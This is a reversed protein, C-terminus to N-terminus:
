SPELVIFAISPKGYPAGYYVYNSMYKSLLNNLKNSFVKQCTTLLIIIESSFYVALRRYINNAQADNLLIHMRLTELLLVGYFFTRSNETGLRSTVVLSERPPFLSTM